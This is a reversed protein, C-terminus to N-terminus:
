RAARYSTESYHSLEYWVVGCGGTQEQDVVTNLAQRFVM